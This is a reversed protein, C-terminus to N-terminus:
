RRVLQWGAALWLFIGAARPVRDDFIGDLLISLTPNAYTSGLVDNVVELTCFALVPVSWVVAAKRSIRRPAPLRVPPAVIGYAFLGVGPVLVAANAQWSFSPYAAVVWAYLAALGWFVLEVPRSRVRSVSEERAPVGCM